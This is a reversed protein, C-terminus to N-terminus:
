LALNCGFAFLACLARDCGERESYDELSFLSCSAFHWFLFAFESEVKPAKTQCVSARIM